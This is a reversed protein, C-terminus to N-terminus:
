KRAKKQENNKDLRKIYDFDIQSESKSAKRVSVKVPTGLVFKEGGRKGLAVKRSEDYYFADSSMSRFPILGEITNPLQVFIGNKCFGSVIGNYEEGIHDQMYEAFKMKTVSRELRDARREQSSTSLGLEVLKPYM